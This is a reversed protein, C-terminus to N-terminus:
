FISCRKCVGEQEDKLVANEHIYSKSQFKYSNRKVHQITENTMNKYSIKSKGLPNNKGDILKRKIEKM